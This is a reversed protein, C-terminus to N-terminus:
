ENGETAIYKLGEGVASHTSLSFMTVLQKLLKDAEEPSLKAFLGKKRAEEVKKELGKEKDVKVDKPLPSDFRTLNFREIVNIIKTAYSSDTAYVGNLEWAASIADPASSKLAPAYVPNTLLLDAYDDLSSAWDPYVRFYDDITYLEGDENEEQTPLNVTGGDKYVGKIGMLNNYGNALGSTGDGSEIYAQAMMVSAYVGKEQGIRRADESIETLFPSGQVYEAKAAGEVGTVAMLGLLGCTVAKTYFKTM